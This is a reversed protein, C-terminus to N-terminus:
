IYIEIYECCNHMPPNQYPFCIHKEARATVLNCRELVSIIEHPVQKLRKKKEKSSMDRDRVIDDLLDSLATQSSSLKQSEYAQLSVQDCYTYHSSLGGGGAALPLSQFSTCHWLACLSVGLSCHFGCVWFYVSACRTFVVAVCTCVCCFICLRM